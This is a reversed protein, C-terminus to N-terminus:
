LPYEGPDPRAPPSDATLAVAPPRVAALVVVAAALAVMAGASIAKEGVFAIVRLDDQQKLFRSIDM